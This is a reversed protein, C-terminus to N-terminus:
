QAPAPTSIAPAAVSPTSPSVAQGGGIKSGYNYGVSYVFQSLAGELLVALKKYPVYPLYVIDGEELKVDPIKGKRIANFDVVAIQPDVLSGRVVAVHSLQAYPLTGRCSAIAGAVTLRDSYPIVSPTAVAGLVYVNRATDSQLHVFDDPQLYLNQSLDGQSLLRHFDVPLMQGDRLLFSRKLNPIGALSGPPPRIAGGASAIAELVTVPTALPYLGPRQVSGLLWVRKSQVERLTVAVDPKDRLLKGLEGELLTKTETLTRGWVFVGPLIDYYIRGDPGVVVGAVSKPDGLVELELVDGPGVTFAATPPRLWELKIRNTQPVSTFGQPALGGAESSVVGNSAVAGGVTKMDVPAYVPPTSRCGALLAALAPLLLFYHRLRM